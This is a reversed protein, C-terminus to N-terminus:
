GQHPNHQRGKRLFPMLDDPRANGARQRLLINVPELAGIKAIVAAVIFHNLSAGHAKALRKAATKTSNPMRLPFLSEKM